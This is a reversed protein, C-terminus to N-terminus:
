QKWNSIFSEMVVTWTSSLWVKLRSNYWVVSSIKLIEDWVINWEPELYVWSFSIYRTFWSEKWGSNYDYWFGTWIPVWVTNKVLWTHQYMMIEDKQPNSSIDEIFYPNTDDWWMNIAVKYFSGWSWFYTWSMTSWKQYKLNNSDRINYVIEIWEKALMNAQTQLEVEKWIAVNDILITLLLLIAIGFIYLSVVLEVVTFWKLRM